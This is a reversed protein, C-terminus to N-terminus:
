GPVPSMLWALCPCHSTLCAAPLLCHPKNSTHGATTLSPRVRAFVRAFVFSTCTSYASSVVRGTGAGSRANAGSEVTRTLLDMSQVHVRFEALIQAVYGSLPTHHPGQICASATATATAEAVLNIFFESSGFATISDQCGCGRIASATAEVHATVVTQAFAEASATVSACLYADDDTSLCDVM